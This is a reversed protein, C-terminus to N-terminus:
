RLRFRLTIIGWVQMDTGASEFLWKRFNEEAYIDLEPFGSSSNIRTSTIRGESNVWFKIKINGQMGQRQAWAPYEITERYILRRDGALGEIELATVRRVALQEDTKLEAVAPFQVRYEPFNYKPSIQVVPIFESFGTFRDTSFKVTEKERSMALKEYDVRAQPVEPIIEIKALKIEDPAISPPLLSVEIPKRVVHSQPLIVAFLSIGAVHVLLSVFLTRRLLNDGRM